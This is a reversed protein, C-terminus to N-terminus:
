LIDDIMTAWAYDSFGANSTDYKDPVVIQWKQLNQLSLTYNFVAVM